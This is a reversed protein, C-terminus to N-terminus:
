RHVFRSGVKACLITEGGGGKAAPRGGSSEGVETGRAALPEVADSADRLEESVVVLGTVGAFASVDVCPDAAGLLAGVEVALDDVELFRVRSVGEDLVDGGADVELPRTQAGKQFSCEGAQDRLNHDHVAVPKRTEAEVEQVEDERFSASPDHNVTAIFTGSVLAVEGVVEEGDGSEKDRTM